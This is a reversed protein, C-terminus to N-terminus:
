RSGPARQVRTGAVRDHVGRGGTLSPVVCLATLVFSLALFTLAWGQQVELISRAAALHGLQWPLVKIGNRVWLQATSARGGEGSGDGLSEGLVGGPGRGDDGARGVQLGAWRKGVTARWSSAECLVLYLLWPLVTVGAILLDWVVMQGASPPGGAREPLDMVQRVVVGVVTLAALWASAVLWDGVWSRVRAVPSPRWRTLTPSPSPM